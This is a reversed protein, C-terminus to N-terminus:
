SLVQALQEMTLNSINKLQSMSVALAVSAIAQEAPVIKGLEDCGTATNNVGLDIGNLFDVLVSNASGNANYIPQSGDPTPITLSPWSTGFLVRPNLLDQMTNVDPTTVSLIDLVEQLDTNSIKGLGQYAKAQLSNLQTRTLDLNSKDPTCLKIIEQNTLGAEALALFVSPITGSVIGAVSSLQQLLAAPTGLNEINGLDVAKGMKRTDEALAPIALTLKTIEGTILDDMTTFTPGLFNTANVASYVVQASQLQYGSIISYTTTFKSLDGNGLYRNATNTVLAGFGGTVTTPIIPTNLVPSSTNAYATPISAGLAPCTTAGITGLATITSASLGFSGALAQASLLTAIPSSTSYSTVATTLNTPVSIGVNAIMGAGAILQLPTYVNEAM